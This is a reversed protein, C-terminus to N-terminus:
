KNPSSISKRIILETSLQVREPPFQMNELRWLLMSVARRGITEKLVQISTLPPSVKSHYDINDFGTFSFDKPIDYGRNILLEMITTAIEDNACVFATPLSNNSKLKDFFTLFQEEVPEYYNMNFLCQDTNTFLHNKELVSRFGLWRDYFSRSYTIDGIFCLNKHGLGFLHSTLQYVGDFNDMFIMDAKVIHDEHDVMIFPANLESLMLLMDSSVLGVTIIGLLSDSKIHKSLNNQSSIIMTGIDLEELYNVIGNFVKSWYSSEENQYRHNPMVVLVFGDNFAEKHHSHVSVSHTANNKFYGLQKAVFLIKQRTSEKVGPQNNLTKSVAYKSYGSADAIM